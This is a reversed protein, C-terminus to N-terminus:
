STSASTFNRAQQGLSDMSVTPGSDKKVGSCISFMRWHCSLSISIAHMSASFMLHHLEAKSNRTRVLISRVLSPSSTCTALCDVWSVHVYKLHVCKVVMDAMGVSSLRLYRTVLCVQLCCLGAGPGHVTCGPLFALYARWTASGCLKGWEIEVTRRAAPVSSGRGKTARGREAQALAFLVYRSCRAALGFSRRIRHVYCHVPLASPTM